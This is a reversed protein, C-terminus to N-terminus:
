RWTEAAKAVPTGGNGMTCSAPQAELAPRSQQPFVHGWWSEIGPVNLRYVPAIGVASDRGMVMSICEM